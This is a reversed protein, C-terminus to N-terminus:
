LTLQNEPVRLETELGRFGFSLEATTRVGSDKSGAGVKQGLPATSAGRYLQALTEGSALLAPTQM